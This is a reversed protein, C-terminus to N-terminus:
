HIGIRYLLMRLAPHNSGFMVWMVFCLFAFILISISSILIGMIAMRKSEKFGLICLIMGSISFLASFIPLGFIPSSSYLLPLSTIALILGIKAKLSRM